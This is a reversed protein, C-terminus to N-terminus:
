LESVLLADWIMDMDLSPMKSLHIGEGADPPVVAVAALGGGVTSTDSDNTKTNSMGRSIAQLKSELLAATNGNISNAKLQNKLNPFNLHACDGRLMYAATDYAFAAEEATEFTGLWVRRRNKPLRIEAVWKGWHRQRVGRFLKTPSCIRNREFTIDRGRKGTYKMPQAKTTSLWYHYGAHNVSNQDIKFWDAVPQLNAELKPENSLLGYNPTFPTSSPQRFSELFHPPIFCGGGNPPMFSSSSTSDGGGGSGGHSIPEDLSNSVDLDSFTQSWGEITQRFYSPFKPLFNHDEM